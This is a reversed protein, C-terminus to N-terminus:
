DVKIKGSLMRRRVTAVADKCAQEFEDFTMDRGALIIAQARAEAEERRKRERELLIELDM